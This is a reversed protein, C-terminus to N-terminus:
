RIDRELDYLMKELYWVESHGPNREKLKKIHADIIEDAETSSLRARHKYQKRLKAENKSDKKGDPSPDKKWWIYFGLFIFIVIAFYYGM